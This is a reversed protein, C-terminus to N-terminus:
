ENESEITMRIIQPANKLLFPEVPPKGKEVKTVYGEKVSVTKGEASVSIEGQYCAVYSTENADVRSVFKTGRIGIVAAPTRVTLKRKGDGKKVDAKFSGSKQIVVEEDPTEKLELMTNDELRLMSGSKTALFMRGRNKTRVENGDYIGTQVAARNWPSNAKRRYTSDGLALLVRAVPKKQLFVPIKLQVGPYILNPTKIDNYELLKKWDGPDELYKGSIKSLTDGKKITIVQLKQETEAFLGTMIVLALLSITANKIKM